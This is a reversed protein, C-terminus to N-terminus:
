ETNCHRFEPQQRCFMHRISGPNRSRQPLERPPSNASKHHWSGVRSNRHAEFWFLIQEHMVDVVAAACFDHNEIGVADVLVFESRDDLRHEM